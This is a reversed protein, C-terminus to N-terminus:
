RRIVEGHAKVLQALLLSCLKVCVHANCLGETGGGTAVAKMVKAECSSLNATLFEGSVDRRFNNGASVEEESQQTSNVATM